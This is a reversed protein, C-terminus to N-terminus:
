SASKATKARPGLRYRFTGGGLDYILFQGSREADKMAALAAAVPEQLLDVRELGALKAARLTAEAQMQNFAAPITVVAGTFDERGTKLRPRALCNVSSKRQANKRRFRFPKRRQDRDAHSNGDPTKFGPLSAKRYLGSRSRTRTPWLLRHGRKDIFIVSPLVEGGDAPRFIRTKGDIIGAIVSNSTGLDIGIYM